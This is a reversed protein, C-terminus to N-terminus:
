VGDAEKKDWRNNMKMIWYQRFLLVAFVFSSVFIRPTAVFVHGHFLNVVGTILLYTVVIPFVLNWIFEDGTTITDNESDNQYDFFSKQIGM